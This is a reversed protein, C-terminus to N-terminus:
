EALGSTRDYVSTWTIKESAATAVGLDQREAFSSTRDYVSTWTIKEPDGETEWAQHTHVSAGSGDQVMVRGVLGRSENDVQLDASLSACAAIMLARGFTMSM